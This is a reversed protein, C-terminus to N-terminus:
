LAGGDAPETVVRLAAEAAGRMEDQLAYGADQWPAIESEGYYVYIARAMREVTANWSEPADPANNIAALRNAQEPTFTDATM